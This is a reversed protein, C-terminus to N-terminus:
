RTGSNAARNKSWREASSQSSSEAHRRNLALATGWTDGVNQDLLLSEKALGAVKDYDAEADALYSALLDV